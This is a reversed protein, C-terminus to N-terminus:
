TGLPCLSDRFRQFLREAQQQDGERPIFWGQLRSRRIVGKELQDHLLQCTWSVEAPQEKGYLLEGGGFDAPHLMELYSFDC